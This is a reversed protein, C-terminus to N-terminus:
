HTKIVTVACKCHKTCYKSVSGIYAKKLGSLNSSGVILHSVDLETVKKVIEHGPDGSLSFAQVHYGEQHLKHGFKSVVSHSSNDERKLDIQTEENENKAVLHEGSVLESVSILVVTDAEKDIVNDLAWDLIEESNKTNNVSIAVTHKRHGHPHFLVEATHEHGHVKFEPHKSEM